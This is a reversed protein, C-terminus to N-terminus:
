AVISQKDHASFEQGAFDMVEDIFDEDEKNFIIRGNNVDAVVTAIKDDKNTHQSPNEIVINRYNLAEDAKIKKEILNADVGNFTNKEIYICKIDVFEKLLDIVHDIYKDVETRADWKILEGKRVYKFGNDSLSGVLFAFSDSNKKSTSSPDVLLMTKTYKHKEIEVASEVRNSKFWKDGIKSADNMMESKFGQTNNYYDTVLKFLKFKDEWITTFQM